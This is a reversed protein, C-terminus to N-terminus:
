LSAKIQASWWAGDLDEAQIGAFEGTSDIICREDIRLM